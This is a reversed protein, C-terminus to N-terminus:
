EEVYPAGAAKLQNNITELKQEIASLKNKAGNLQTTIIQMQKKHTSTPGYTSREIGRYVAFLRDGILPTTKEGISLKAPNGYIESNLANLDKHINSFQTELSGPALNSKIAAKEMANVRQKAKKIGINLASIDRSTNEYNRWFNSTIESSAGKLAGEYLPKVSFSITEDLKKITGNEQLYMTVKYYGPPAMLGKPGDQEENMTMQEELMIPELSPYRLDWAIRNMGAKPTTTIKRIIEGTTDEIAFILQPQEEISEAALADYGPFPVDTSTYNKESKMRKANATMPAEKLYYTFVAGFDPNPAVFHSDGQSGKGSEFSLHPREVYWWADRTAFLKAEQELTSSTLERLPTIDDLIYFGRGFSAGVLDNERRQITIDRFSITPVGGELKTWSTGGNITFYIGFETAAFLLDKKVHDQVLRWVMTREPINSSISTWTKGKNTSKLLYPNFDGYKHNDLAVYVTNADFLDARIDNVFATAPVGPLSGVTTKRWNAGGDETVQIIGDDTGAYLLGKQKPSEALSTITNYNSMAYVDWGENFSQKKGMIPLEIRNQNKTLDGSIATWDDGRNDSKWVRQSAFYITTPAHPSVLIPADWNYREYVENEGPQPQIDIVQGTSIDVRSLTGEQREAYVINPNGPETATQHGDWNLIVKWDSNQIGHVNDTRSPGGETSNDQTGGYINYFPKADDVALKYFQTVPLNEVYKWTKTLDFSEYLGGDSGVLLYDPDDQRFAIAHNDGHKNKENMRYFTKGGDESIQLNNDMLYLRGDQHPSAYLEQYYHPGTGGTVTNSQKQWSSGGDDSRWLGGTRRELEIAAYLTKTNFSSIALGIKGMNGSPLGNTLKTWTDGGDTSRHLGSGPGGGMYAAVTRHRDWTAAYLVDPNEDDIVVETVGTWEDNGLTKKWTKGGDISKYLGRDGGSNWLPGQSAVWVINSDEPHVIIRSIHQSDRLGMNEWTTGGDMSKYVGDGFAIHRGGVDEGTGVWITSYNNPDITVAGIAFTAQEDFIPTWTTGSNVTKWVGGSAVGTYWINENEPHIAIAAIRGSMFAPGISRLKLGNFVSDNTVKQSNNNRNKQASIHLTSFIFLVIISYSFYKNKM